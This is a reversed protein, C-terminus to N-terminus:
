EVEAGGRGVPGGPAVVEVVWAVRGEAEVRHLIRLRPDPEDEDLGPYRKSRREDVLAYRIGRQRLWEIWDGRPGPLPHWKAGAYYADRLKASAVREVPLEQAALWEAAARAAARETRQPRLAMAASATVLLGLGV